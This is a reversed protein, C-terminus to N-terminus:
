KKNSKLAQVILECRHKLEAYEPRNDCILVTTEAFEQAEEPLNQKLFCDTAFWAPIPNTPELNLAIYFGLCADEYAEIQHYSSALGLIYKYTGPSAGSLFEFLSISERYKGQNYFTFALSYVEELAEDSIGTADKLNMQPNAELKKVLERGIQEAEKSSLAISNIDFNNNKKKQKNAM